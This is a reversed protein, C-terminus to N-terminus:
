KKYERDNDKGSSGQNHWVQHRQSLRASSIGTPRRGADTRTAVVLCFACARAQRQMQQPGRGQTHKDAASSSAENHVLSLRSALWKKKVAKVKEPSAGPQEYARNSVGAISAHRAGNCLRNFRNCVLPQPLANDGAGQRWGSRAVAGNSCMRWHM